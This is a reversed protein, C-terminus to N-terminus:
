QHPNQNCGMQRHPSHHGHRRHTPILNFQHRLLLINDVHPVKSLSMTLRATAIEASGNSKSTQTRSGPSPSYPATPLFIRLNNCPHTKSLKSKTQVLTTQHPTHSKHNPPHYILQLTPPPQPHNTNTYHYPQYYAPSQTHSNQYAQTPYHSLYSPSHQQNHPAWQMTHNVERTQLQPPPQNTDQNMKWKTGIYIPCDKTKHDTENGHYM